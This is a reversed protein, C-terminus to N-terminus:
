VEKWLEGRRVKRITSPDIRIFQALRLSSLKSERITAVDEWTLKANGNLAGRLPVHRGREDRDKNNQAQDGLYLHDPNVCLSNDCKHLVDADPPIGGRYIEWSVRHAYLWRGNPRGGHIVGYGTGRKNQKLKATWLWCGSNPEPTYKSEFRETLTAM